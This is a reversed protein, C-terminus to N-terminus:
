QFLYKSPSILTGQFKNRNISERHIYLICFFNVQFHLLYISVSSKEIAYSPFIVESTLSFIRFPTTFPFFILFYINYSKLGKEM